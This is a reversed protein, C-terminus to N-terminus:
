RIDKDDDWGPKRNRRDVGSRRDNDDKGMRFSERRFNVRRQGRRKERPKVVGTARSSQRRARRWLAIATAVALLGAVLMMWSADDM